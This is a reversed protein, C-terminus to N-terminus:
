AIIFVYARLLFVPPFIRRCRGASSAFVYGGWLPPASVRIHDPWRVLRSAARALGCSSGADVLASPTYATSVRGSLSNQVAGDSPQRFVVVRGWVLARFAMASPTGRPEGQRELREFPAEMDVLSAATTISAWLPLM